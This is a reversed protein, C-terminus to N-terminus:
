YVKEKDDIEVDKVNKLQKIIGKLLGGNVKFELIALYHIGEKNLKYQTSVQELKKDKVINLRREDDAKVGVRYINHEVMYVYFDGYDEQM